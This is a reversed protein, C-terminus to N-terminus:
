NRKIYKIKKLFLFESIRESLNSPTFTSVYSSLDIADEEGVSREGEGETREVEGETREVEGETREVEGETARLEESKKSKVRTVTLLKSTERVEIFYRYLRKCFVSSLTLLKLVSIIELTL